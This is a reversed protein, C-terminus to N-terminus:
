GKSDLHTMLGFEKLFDTKRKSRMMKLPPGSTILLLKQHAMDDALINESDSTDDSVYTGNNRAEVLRRERDDLRSRLCHQPVMKPPLCLKKSPPQLSNDRTLYKMRELALLEIAKDKKICNVADQTKVTKSMEAMQRKKQQFKQGKSNLNELFSEFQNRQIQEVSRDDSRKVELRGDSRDKTKKNNYLSGAEMTFQTLNKTSILPMASVKHDVPVTGLMNLSKYSNLGPAVTKDSKEKQIKTRPLEKGCGNVPAVEFPRHFTAPIRKKANPDASNEQLEQVVSGPSTSNMRTFWNKQGSTAAGDNDQWSM